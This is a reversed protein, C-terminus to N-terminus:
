RLYEEHAKSAMSQARHLVRRYHAGLWQRLRVDDEGANALAIFRLALAREEAETM